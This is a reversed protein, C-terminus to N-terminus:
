RAGEGFATIVRGMLDDYVNMVRQGSEARRLAEVMAVMEDGSVVNSAEYAGQVIQVKDVPVFQASDIGAELTLDSPMAGLPIFAAIRGLRVGKDTVTGDVGVQFKDTAVILDRGNDLQLAFGQSNILRGDADVSLQGDRSYITQSDKGLAFYGSGSLALDSVNGTEVFKGTRNDQTFATQPISADGKPDQRLLEVFAVRRKFAPTAANALNRGAVEVRNQAQSITALALETLEGMVAGM